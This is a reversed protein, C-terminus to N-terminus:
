DRLRQVRQSAWFCALFVVNICRFNYNRGSCATVLTVLKRWLLKRLTWHRARPPTLSITGAHLSQLIYIYLYMYIYIPIQRSFNLSQRKRDRGRVSTSQAHLFSRIKGLHLYIDYRHLGCCIMICGMWMKKNRIDIHRFRQSFRM